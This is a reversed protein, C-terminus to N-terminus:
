FVRSEPATFAALAEAVDHGSVVDFRHRMLLLSAEHLAANDSGVCDEAIVVYYDNFQGDRATSEICGETTCGTIIITKIGNSRLLMNLDTGWFASSRHKKVLVEGPAPALAEIGEAGSTGDITYRLPESQGRCRENILLNFRLQAPSESALSPHM